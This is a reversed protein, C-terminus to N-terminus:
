ISGAEEIAKNRKKRALKKLASEVKSDSGLVKSIATFQNQLSLQVKPIIDSFDNLYRKTLDLRSHTNNQSKNIPVLIEVLNEKNIFVMEIKRANLKFEIRLRQPSLKDFGLKNFFGFYAEYEHIDDFVSELIYNGLKDKPIQLSSKQKKVM